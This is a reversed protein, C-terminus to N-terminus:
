RAPASPTSRCRSAWMLTGSANSLVEVRVGAALAATAYSHRVDHLRIPPLKAEAALAKFRRSLVQPHIPSGDPETVVMDQDGQWGVGM